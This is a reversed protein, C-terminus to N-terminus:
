GYKSGRRAPRKTAAADALVREQQEDLTIM